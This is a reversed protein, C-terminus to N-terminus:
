DQEYVTGDRSWSIERNCQFFFPFLSQGWSWTATGVKDDWDSRVREFAADAAGEGLSVITQKVIGM